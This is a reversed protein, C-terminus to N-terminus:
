ENDMEHNEEMPHFEFKLTIPYKKRNLRKQYKQQFKVANKPPLYAFYVTIEFSEFDEKCNMPEFYGKQQIFIIYNEIKMQLIALHAQIDGWEMHDFIFLHLKKNDNADVAVEDIKDFEHIM